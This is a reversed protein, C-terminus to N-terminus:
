DNILIAALTALVTIIIMTILIQFGVIGGIFFLGAIITTIFSSALFAGAPSRGQSNYIFLVAMIILILFISLAGGTLDLNIAQIIGATSNSATINTLNYYVMKM